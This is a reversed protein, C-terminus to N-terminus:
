KQTRTSDDHSTSLIDHLRQENKFITDLAFRIKPVPRMRLKRNLIYQINGANKQLTLLAEKKRTRVLTSLFITAHAIDSSTEVRTVTIFLQKGIDLEKLIIRGIEEKLLQNIKELRHPRKEQRM